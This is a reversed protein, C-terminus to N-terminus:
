KKPQYEIQVKYEIRFPNWIETDVGLLEGGFGDEVQNGTFQSGLYIDIGTLCSAGEECVTLYRFILYAKEKPEFYYKEFSVKDVKAGVYQWNKLKRQIDGSVLASVRSMIGTADNVIRTDEPNCDTYQDQHNVRDKQVDPVNRNTVHCSGARDIYITRSEDNQCRYIVSLPVDVNM